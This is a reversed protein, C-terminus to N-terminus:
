IWSFRCYRLKFCTFDIPYPIYETPRGEPGGYPWSHDSLHAPSSIDHGTPGIEMFVSFLTHQFLNFTYILRWIEQPKLWRASVFIHICSWDLRYMYKLPSNAGFIAVKRYTTRTKELNKLGFREIKVFTDTWMGIMIGGLNCKFSHLLVRYIAQWLGLCLWWTLM